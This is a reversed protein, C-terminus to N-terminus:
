QFEKTEGIGQISKVVEQQLRIGGTDAPELSRRVKVLFLLPKCDNLDDCDKRHESPLPLLSRQGPQFPHPPVGEEEELLIVLTPVSRTSM